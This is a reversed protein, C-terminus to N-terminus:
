GHSEGRDQLGPDLDLFLLDYPTEEQLRQLASGDCLVWPNGPLYYDNLRDPASYVFLATRGDELSHLIVRRHTPDTEDTTPVYVVPPFSALYDELTQEGEGAASPRGATEAVSPAPASAPM